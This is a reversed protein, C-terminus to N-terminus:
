EEDKQTSEASASSGASASRSDLIVFEEGFAINTDAKMLMKFFYLESAPGVKDIQIVDEDESLNVAAFLNSSSPNPSCLTVVIVDDPWSAITEIPIGKYRAANVDTESANKSERETLEDDYKDFDNVSMIIRLAPNGRMATPIAKRVAKLKGLMTSEASEVKIIDDDKLAQTLIGNMLEGEGDGYKGNVYLDGLEFTVQKSLAELLTNQVNAPLERFVMQGKPQFPRWISEFASPDFVTFAMLDHPELKKESYDFNGKSDTVVPNKERKRLMKSTKVRPISVAKNIGPIVSILVKSVIENGTAAVTLLQELVEGSYNSNNVILAM